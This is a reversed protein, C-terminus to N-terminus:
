TYNKFYNSCHLFQLWNKNKYYRLIYLFSSLMMGTVCTFKIDIFNGDRQLPCLSAVDGKPFTFILQSIRCTRRGNCLRAPEDTPKTCNRWPCRSPNENPGYSVSYGVVASQINLVQDASCQGEDDVNMTFYQGRPSAARCRHFRISEVDVVRCEDTAAM